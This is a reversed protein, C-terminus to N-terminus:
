PYYEIQSQIVNIARGDRFTQQLLCNKEKDFLKYDNKIEWIKSKDQAFGTYTLLREDEDYKSVARYDMSGDALYVEEEILRKKDDYKNKTTFDLENNSKYSSTEILNHNKDFVNVQKFQEKTNQATTIAEILNNEEDYHYMTTTLLNGEVDCEKSESKLKKDNYFFTTISTVEDKENVLTSKIENGDNNFTRISKSLLQGLYPEAKTSDYFFTSTTITKIKGNWKEKQLDSLPTEKKCSFLVTIMLFYFYRKM